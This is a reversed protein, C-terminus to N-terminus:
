SEKSNIKSSFSRVIRTSGNKLPIATGAPKDQLVVLHTQAKPHWSIMSYPFINIHNVFIIASDLIIHLKLSPPRLVVSDLLGRASLCSASPHSSRFEFSLRTSIRVVICRTGLAMCPYINSLTRWSPCFVLLYTL